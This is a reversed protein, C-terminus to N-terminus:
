NVGVHCVGSERHTVVSEDVLTTLMTMTSNLVGASFAWAIDALWGCLSRCVNRAFAGVWCRLQQFTCRVVYNAGWGFNCKSADAADVVM